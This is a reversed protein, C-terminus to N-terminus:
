RSENIVKVTTVVGPHERGIWEREVTGCDTLWHVMTAPATDPYERDHETIDVIIGAGIKGVPINASEFQPVHRYVEILDGVKM